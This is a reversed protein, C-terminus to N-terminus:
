QFFSNVSQGGQTQTARSVEEKVRFAIVGCHPLAHNMGIQRATWCAPMQCMRVGCHCCQFEALQQM